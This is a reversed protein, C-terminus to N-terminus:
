RDIRGGTLCTFGVDVSLKQVKGDFHEALFASYDKYYPNM